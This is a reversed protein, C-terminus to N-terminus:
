QSRSYHELSETEDGSDSPSPSRRRKSGRYGHDDRTSKWEMAYGHLLLRVHTREADHEPDWSSALVTKPLVVTAIEPGGMLQVWGRSNAVRVMLKMRLYHHCSLFLLMQRLWRPLKAYAKRIVERHDYSLSWTYEQHAREADLDEDPILTALTPHMASSWGPGFWMEQHGGTHLRMLWLMKDCRRNTPNQIRVAHQEEYRPLPIIANCDILLRHWHQLFSRLASEPLPAQHTTFSVHTCQALALMDKYTLFLLFASRDPYLTRRRRHPQVASFSRTAADLPTTADRLKYCRDRHMVFYRLKLRYLQEASSFRGVAGVEHEVQQIGLWGVRSFLLLFDYPAGNWRGKRRIAAWRASHALRLLLEPSLFFLAAKILWVPIRRFHAWAEAEFSHLILTAQSPHWPNGRIPEKTKSTWLRHSGRVCSRMQHAYDILCKAAYFQRPSSPLLFPQASSTPSFKEAALWKTPKARALLWEFQRRLGETAFRIPNRFTPVAPQMLYTEWRVMRKLVGIDFDVTRDQQVAKGTAKSVARSAAIVPISAFM